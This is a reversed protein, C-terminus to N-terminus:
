FIKSSLDYFKRMLLLINGPKVRLTPYKNSKQFFKLKILMCLTPMCTYHQYSVHM